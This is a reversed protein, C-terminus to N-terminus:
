SSKWCQKVEEWVTEMAVGRSGKLLLVDGPRLLGALKKALAPKEAFAACERGGESRYGKCFVEGFEGYTLLVDVGLRAALRGGEFHAQEAAEGLELMDGLVALARSGTNARVHALTELAARLSDPNSNYVDFLVHIGNWEFVEMRRAYGSFEELARCIEEPPVEWFVGVAAAALANAAQHKGPVKLQIPRSQRFRLRARGFTDLGLFEGKVDPSGTFGFTFKRSVGEGIKVVRPDDLNVFAVGDEPLSEFLEAKAKAVEDVSGFFELHGAGINTILGHTPRAIECLRRIEGFHNTGMEMIAIETQVDIALLSLPLGIHNNLNGRTKVVRFKKALVAAVMEKTTTKGNTGTIALVPVRFRMRYRHAITQLAYLPDEVRILLADPPLPTEPKWGKEVIAAVAGKQFAQPVFQHGDFREGRLAVYVEGTRLSRTDQSVGVVKQPTSGEV